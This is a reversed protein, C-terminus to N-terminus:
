SWCVPPVAWVNAAPASGEPQDRAVAAPEGHDNRLAAASPPDLPCAYTASKVLVGVSAESYVGTTLTGAPCDGTTEKVVSSSRPRAWTLMVVSPPFVQCVSHLEPSM